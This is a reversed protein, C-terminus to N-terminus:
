AGLRERKEERSDRENVFSESFTEGLNKTSMWGYNRLKGCRRLKDM